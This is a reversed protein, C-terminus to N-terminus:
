KGIKLNSFLRGLGKTAPDKITVIARAFRSAPNRMMKVKYVKDSDRLRFRRHTRLADLMEDRTADSNIVPADQNRTPPMHLVAALEPLQELPRGWRISAFTQGYKVRDASYAQLVRDVEELDKTAAMEFLLDTWPQILIIRKSQGVTINFGRRDQRSATYMQPLTAQAGALIPKGLAHPLHDVSEPELARQYQGLLVKRLDHVNSPLAFVAAVDYSETSERSYVTNEGFQIWVSRTVYPEIIAM